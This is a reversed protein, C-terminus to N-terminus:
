RERFTSIGAMLAVIGALVATLPALVWFLDLFSYWNCAIGVLGLVALVLGIIIHVM